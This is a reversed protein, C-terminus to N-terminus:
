IDKGNHASNYTTCHVPTMKGTIIMMDNGHSRLTIRGNSFLMGSASQRRPLVMQKSNYQLEIEDRGTLFTVTPHSGDDCVFEVIKNAPQSVCGSVAIVAGILGVTRLKM